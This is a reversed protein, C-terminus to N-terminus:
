VSGAAFAIPVTHLTARGDREIRSIALTCAAPATTCDVPDGLPPDIAAELTVDVAFGTGPVDLVGSGPAVACGALVTAIPQAGSGFTGICQGVGWAGTPFPGWPAGTFTPGVNEGTLRVVQGDALGSAPDATLRAEAVDYPTSGAVLYWEEDVAGIACVGPECAIPTAPFVVEIHDAVAMTARATGDAAAVVTPGVDVSDCWDRIPSSAVFDARCPALHYRAGPRLGALDVEASTGAVLATTRITVTADALVFRDYAVVRPGGEADTLVAGVGCGDAGRVCILRDGTGITTSWASAVEASATGDAAATV